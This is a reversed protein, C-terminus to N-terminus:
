GSTTGNSEPKLLHGCNMCHTDEPSVKSLCAPCISFQPESSETQGTREPEESSKQVTMRPMESKKKLFYSVGKATIFFGISVMVGFFLIGIAVFLTMQYYNEVFVKATWFALVLCFLGLILFIISLIKSVGTILVGRNVLFGGIVAILTLYIVRIFWSEDIYILGIVLRLSSFYADVMMYLGIILLTIGIINRLTLYDKVANKDLHVMKKVKELMVVTVM